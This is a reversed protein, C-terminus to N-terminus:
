LIGKVSVPTFWNETDMAELSITSDSVSLVRKTKGTNSNGARMILPTFNNKDIFYPIDGTSWCNYCLVLYDYGTSDCDLQTDSVKTFPLDVLHEKVIKDYIADIKEQM